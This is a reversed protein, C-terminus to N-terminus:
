STRARTGRATPRSRTTGTTSAAARLRLRRLVLPGAGRLVIVKVADDRSPARRGGGGGRRADAPRDHEPQEPRNLTITAIAGDTRYLLTEFDPMAPRLLQALGPDAARSRRRARPRARRPSSASTASRSSARLRARGDDPFPYWAAFTANLPDASWAGTRDDVHDDGHEKTTFRYLTGSAPSSSRRRRAPAGGARVVRRHDARAALPGGREDGARGLVAHGGVPGRPRGHGDGRPHPAHASSRAARRGGGAARPRAREELLRRRQETPDLSM